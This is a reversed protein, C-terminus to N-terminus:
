GQGPAPTMRCHLDMAILVDSPAGAAHVVIRTVGTTRDFSGAVQPPPRAGGKPMPATRGSTAFRRIVGTESSDGFVIRGPEAAVIESRGLGFGVVIGRDLDVTGNAMVTNGAGSGAPATQMAGSCTLLIRGGSMAQPDFGSPAPAATVTTAGIPTAFLTVAFVRALWRM